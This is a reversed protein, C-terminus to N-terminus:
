MTCCKIDTFRQRQSQCASQQNTDADPMVVESTFLGICTATIHQLCQFLLKCVGHMEIHRCNGDLQLTQVADIHCSNDRFVQQLSETMRDTTKLHYKAKQAAM